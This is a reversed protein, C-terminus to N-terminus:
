YLMVLSFQFQDIEMPQVGNVREYITRAYELNIKLPSNGEVDLPDISTGMHLRLKEGGYFGPNAMSVPYIFGNPNPVSLAADSGQIRAKDFYALRLTPSFRGVTKFSTWIDVTFEDGLRYGRDNTGTRIRYGINAGYQIEDSQNQYTLNVPFDYTGSGLQMNYPLIQNGPGRPTDGVQEISGTPLSIGTNLFLAHNDQEWLQSTLNLTTDGWGQSTITFEDYGPIISVHDTAQKIYAGSLSISFKKNLARSLSFQHAEQTIQRVAIPFNTQTRPEVGDWIVEALNIQTADRRYGRQKRNVYRYSLYWKSPKTESTRSDVQILLLDELSMNSLEAPSNHAAAGNSLMGAALLICATAFPSNDPKRGIKSNVRRKM